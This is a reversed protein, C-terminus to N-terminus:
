GNAGISLLRRVGGIDDAVGLVYRDPRVVVARAGVEALWGELAADRVVVAGAVEGEFDGAALVGFGLGLVEDLLRGDALVPQPVVRGAPEARGEHGGLRPAPSRM